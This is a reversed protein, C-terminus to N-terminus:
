KKAFRIFHLLLIESKPQLGNRKTRPGRTQTVKASVWIWTCKVFYFAFLSAYHVHNQKARVLTDVDVNDKIYIVHSSFVVKSIVVRIQVLRSMLHASQVTIILLHFYRKRNKKCDADIKDVFHKIKAPPYFLITFLLFHLILYITFDTMSLFILYWKYTFQEVYSSGNEYYIYTESYDKQEFVFTQNDRSDTQSGRAYTPFERRCAFANWTNTALM